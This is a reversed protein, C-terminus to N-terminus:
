DDNESLLKRGAKVKGQEYEYECLCMVRCMNSIMVTHIRPM